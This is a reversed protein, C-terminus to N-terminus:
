DQGRSRVRWGTNHGQAQLAQDGIHLTVQQTETHRLRLGEKLLETATKLEIFRINLAEQLMDFAPRHTQM